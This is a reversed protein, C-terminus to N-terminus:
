VRKHKVLKQEKSNMVSDGWELATIAALVDEESERCCCVSVLHSSHGFPTMRVPCSTKELAGRCWCTDGCVPRFIDSCLFCGAPIFSFFFPFFFFKETQVEFNNKLWVVVGSGTEQSTELCYESTGCVSESLKGKCKSLRETWDNPFSFAFSALSM